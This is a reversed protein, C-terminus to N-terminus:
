VDVTSNRVKEKKITKREKKREKIKQVEISCMLFNFGNLIKNNVLRDDMGQFYKM